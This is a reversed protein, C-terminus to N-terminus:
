SSCRNQERVSDHKTLALASKDNSIEESLGPAIVSKGARLQIEYEIISDQPIGIRYWGAGLAGLGWRRSGMGAVRCDLWRATWCCAAARIGPIFFFASGFM